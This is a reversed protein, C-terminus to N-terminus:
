TTPELAQALEDPSIDLANFLKSFTTMTPSSDGDEILKIAAHTVGSQEQLQRLSWGLATRKEKILSGITM